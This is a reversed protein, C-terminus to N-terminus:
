GRRARLSAHVRHYLRVPEGLSRARNLNHKETYTRLFPSTFSHTLRRM